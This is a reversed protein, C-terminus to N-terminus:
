PLIPDVALLLSFSLLVVLSYGFVRRAWQIQSLDGKQIALRLWNLGVQTIAVLYAYGAYGAATLSVAVAIFMVIYFIIARETAKLGKKAPLVPISAAQYDKLRFMAIAYFHPMQWVVMILFLLWAGLDFQNTVACYGVVIPIAGSITGVETGRISKRKALGYLFVYDILGLAALGLTLWNVQALLIFGLMALASAFILANRVSIDGRILARERTRKMKSDIRRDLVNNYVCAAAIVLAIGAVTYFGLQLNLGSRSAFLFGGVTTLVNGYM